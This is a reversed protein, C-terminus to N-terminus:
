KETVSKVWPRNQIYGCKEFSRLVAVRHRGNEVKGNRGYAIPDNEFISEYVIQTDMVIGLGYLYDGIEKGDRGELNDFLEPNEEIALKVGKIFSKRDPYDDKKIPLEKYRSVLVAFDMLKNVDCKGDEDVLGLAMLLDNVQLRMTALMGPDWSVGKEIIDAWLKMMKEYQPLSEMIEQSSRETEQNQEDEEPEEERRAHWSEYGEGGGGHSSECYINYM